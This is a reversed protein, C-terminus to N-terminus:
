LAERERRLRDLKDREAQVIQPKAKTVFGQNALKKESRAIEADLQGSELAQAPPQPTNANAAANNASARNANSAGSRGCAALSLM